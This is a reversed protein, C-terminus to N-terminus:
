AGPRHIDYALEFPVVLHGFISRPLDIANDQVWQPTDSKTQEGAVTSLLVM